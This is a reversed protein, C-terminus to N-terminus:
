VVVHSTRRRGAQDTGYRRAIEGALSAGISRDSNSISHQTLVSREGCLAQEAEVLLQEAIPSQPVAVAPRSLGGPAAVLLPELDFSAEGTCQM